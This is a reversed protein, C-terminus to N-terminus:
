QGQEKPIRHNVWLRAALQKHSKWHLGCGIAGWLLKMRQLAKTPDTPHSANPVRSNSHM